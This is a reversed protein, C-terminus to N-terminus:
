IYITNRLTPELEDAWGNLWVGGLAMDNDMTFLAATKLRAIRSNPSASTSSAIVAAPQVAYLVNAKAVVKM